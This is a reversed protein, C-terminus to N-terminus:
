QFLVGQAGISKLEKQPSIQLYRYFSRLSIFYRPWIHKKWIFADSQGEVRIQQYYDQVAQVKHLHNAKITHQRKTM